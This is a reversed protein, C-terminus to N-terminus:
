IVRVQPFCVTGKPPKALAPHNKGTGYFQGIFKEYSLWSVRKPYVPKGLGEVEIIICGSSGEQICQIHARNCFRQADKRTLFCMIGLTGEPATV